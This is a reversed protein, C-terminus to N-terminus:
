CCKCISVHCCLLVYDHFMVPLRALDLSALTSVQVYMPSTGTSVVQASLAKPRSGGYLTYHTCCYGYVPISALELGSISSSKLSTGSVPELRSFDYGLCCCSSFLDECSLIQSPHCNHNQLRLHTDCKSVM